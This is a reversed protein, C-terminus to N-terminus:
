SSAYHGQINKSETFHRLFIAYQPATQHMQTASARDTTIPVNEAPTSASEDLINGVAVSSWDTMAGGRTRTNSGRGSGYKLLVDDVLMADENNHDSDGSVSSSEHGNDMMQLETQFEGPVSSSEHRNEIM